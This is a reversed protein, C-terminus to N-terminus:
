DSFTGKQFSEHELWYISFGKGCTGYLFADHEIGKNGWNSTAAREASCYEMYASLGTNKEDDIWTSQPFELPFKEIEMASYGAPNSVVGVLLANRKNHGLVALDNVSDGNFDGIVAFQLQHENCSYYNKNGDCSKVFDRVSWVQFTSDFNRLANQITESLHLACQGDLLDISPTDIRIRKNENETITDKKVTDVDARLLSDHSSTEQKHGCGSLWSCFLALLIICCNKNIRM